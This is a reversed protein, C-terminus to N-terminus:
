RMGRLAITAAADVGVFFGHADTELAVKYVERAREPTEYGEIVDALVKAPDREAPDGYGGGGNDLGIISEGPRLTCAVSGPLEIASGDARVHFNGGHQADAGGRVGRPAHKRGNCVTMVTMDDNRPVFEVRTALGGRQRGAGASGPVLRMSKVLVPFRQEDIEVSDRYLLGAGMASFIYNMGDSTPSAPGGGGMLFIQNVYGAGGRRSDHGSVVSGGISNCLNGESLGFGEGIDSFAAQTANIIVDALLTTAVSCSHPFEPIGVVCNERLLVQIRRFSGSNLPLDDELCNFVAVICAATATAESQNIGADVCDMNDRLDITVMAADPDISVRVKVPIDFPLFDGLSDLSGLGDLSAVPFKRIAAATRRESYDLWAAIFAKIEYAGFKAIFAKLAREGSRAAGVTALYDGYWQDPIRIRRRCMNIIDVNDKYDSQVRVFPFTLSGEEYVDRATPHYTTPVSNGCDAQHCKVAATFIHEGEHFVPVLITHDAPHTNGTYPDNHLFADGEAFDPHHEAMGRSQLNGGFVHGPLGEAAAFIEHSSTLISCSFDRAMGIVSSNAALVVTNTMERVIAEVRNAMIALRVPDFESNRRQNDM